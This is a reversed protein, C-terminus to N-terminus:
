AGVREGLAPRAGRAWDPPPLMRMGAPLVDGLRVAGNGTGVVVASGDVTLEGPALQSAEPALEVPGVRLRDGRWM